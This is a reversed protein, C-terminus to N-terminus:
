EVPQILTRHFKTTIYKNKLSFFSQISENERRKRNDFTFIKLLEKFKGPLVSHFVTLTIKTMLVLITLLILWGDCVFLFTHM